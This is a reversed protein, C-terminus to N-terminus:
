ARSAIPPQAQSVQQSETRAAHRLELAVLGKGRLQCQIAWAPAIYSRFVSYPDVRRRDKGLRAVIFFAAAVDLVVSKLDIERTADAAAL